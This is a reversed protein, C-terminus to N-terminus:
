DDPGTPKWAGGPAFDDHARESSRGSRWGAWSARADVEVPSFRGARDTGGTAAPQNLLMQSAPTAAPAAERWSCGRAASAARVPRTLRLVFRAPPGPAITKRM